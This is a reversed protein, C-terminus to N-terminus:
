PLRAEAACPVTDLVQFYRAPEFPTGRTAADSPSLINQWHLEWMIATVPSGNRRPYARCLYRAYRRRAAANNYINLHFKVEKFDILTQEWLARRSQLPLPLVVTDGDAYQAKLVDWWNFRSNHAFMTWRNDLGVLHAYQQILWGGRRIQYALSPPIQKDLVKNAADILRIPWNSFLITFLNLIIFASIFAKPPHERM